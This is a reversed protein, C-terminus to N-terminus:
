SWAVRIEIECLVAAYAASRGIVIISSDLEFREREHYNQSRIRLLLDPGGDKGTATQIRILHSRSRLCSAVVTLILRKSVERNEIRPGM